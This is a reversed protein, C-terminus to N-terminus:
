KTRDAFGVCSFRNFVGSLYENEVCDSSDSILREYIACNEGKRGFAIM